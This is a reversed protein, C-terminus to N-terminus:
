AAGEDPEQQGSDDDTEEILHRSQETTLWERLERIKRAAHLNNDAQEQFRRKKEPNSEVIEKMVGAAEELALVAAWLTRERTEAEAEVYTEPSYRHCQAIRSSRIRSTNIRGSLSSLSRRFLPRALMMFFFSFQIHKGAGCLLPSVGILRPELLSPKTIPPPRSSANIRGSM